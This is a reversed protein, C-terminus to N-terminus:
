FLRVPPSIVKLPDYLSYAGEFILSREMKKEEKLEFSLYTLLVFEYSILNLHLQGNQLCHLLTHTESSLFKPIDQHIPRVLFFGFGFCGAEESWFIIFRKQRGRRGRWSSSHKSDKPPLPTDPRAKTVNKHIYSWQKHSVDYDSGLLM